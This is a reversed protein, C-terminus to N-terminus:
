EAQCIDNNLFRLVEDYSKNSKMITAVLVDRKIADRKDMLGELRTIAADYRHKAKVADMQAKEIKQEISEIAALRAM